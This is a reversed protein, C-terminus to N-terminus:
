TQGGGKKNRRKGSKFYFITLIYGVWSSAIFAIVPMGIDTINTEKVHGYFPLYHSEFVVSDFLLLVYCALIVVVTWYSGKLIKSEIRSVHGKKYLCSLYGFILGFIVTFETTLLGSFLNEIKDFLEAM